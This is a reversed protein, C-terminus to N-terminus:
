NVVEFEAEHIQEVARVPKYEGFVHLVGNEPEACLIEGKNLNLQTPRTSATVLLKIYEKNTKPDLFIDGCEIYKLEITNQIKNRVYVDM